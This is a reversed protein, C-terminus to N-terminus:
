QLFIRKIIRLKHTYISKENNFIGQHDISDIRVRGSAHIIKGESAILGVHTILGEENDFFALDGPQVETIFDVTKGTSAQQSADRPIFIDHIRYITQTFGSCDLGFISKGGWLYPSNIFHMATTTVDTPKAAAVQNKFTLSGATPHFYGGKPEREFIFAGPPMTYEMNAEGIHCQDVMSTIILAANAITAFEADSLAKVMNSSVWGQYGDAMSQVLLWSEATDNIEIPEGWLLQSVMESSESPERRMPVITEVAIAKKSNLKYKFPFKGM